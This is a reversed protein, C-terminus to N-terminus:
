IQVLFCLGCSFILPWMRFRCSMLPCQEMQEPFMHNPTLVEYMITHSTLLTDTLGSFLSSTTQYHGTSILNYRNYTLETKYWVTPKWATCQGPFSWKVLFLISKMKLSFPSKLGQSSGSVAADRPYWVDSVSQYIVKDWSYFPLCIILRSPLVSVTPCTPM